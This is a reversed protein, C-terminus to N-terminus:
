VTLLLSLQSFNHLRGTSSMGPLWVTVKEPSRRILRCGYTSAAKVLALEDPSEAEYRTRLSSDSMQSSSGAISGDSSTFQYDSESNLSALSAGRAKNFRPPTAAEPLRNYRDLGEERSQSAQKLFEPQSLFGSEDMQVFLMCM